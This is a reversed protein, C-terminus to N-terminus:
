LGLAKRPHMSIKKIEDVIEDLTFNAKILFQDAGANTAKVIDEKQGFNSLMVVNTQALAPNERVRRLVEFGDIGPLLIDLLIVNPLEKEAFLIGEEGDVAVLVNIGERTLKQTALDRLFKDDEVILVKVSALSPEIKQIIPISVSMHSIPSFPKDLSAVISEKMHKQIKEVIQEPTFTSKVFYDKIGFKLANSIEVLDGNESAIIIPTESFKGNFDTRLKALVSYDSEPLISMDLMILNIHQRELVGPIIDISNQVFVGYGASHIIDSLEKVFSEDNCLLFINKTFTEPM